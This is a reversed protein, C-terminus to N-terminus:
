SDPETTVLLRASSAVFSLFVVVAAM